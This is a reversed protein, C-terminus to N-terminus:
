IIRQFLFHSHFIKKFFCFNHFLHCSPAWLYHAIVSSGLSIPIKWERKGWEEMRQNNRKISRYRSPFSEFICEFWCLKPVEPSITQTSILIRDFMISRQHHHHRHHYCLLSLLWEMKRMGESARISDKWSKIIIIMIIIITIITIIFWWQHHDYHNKNCFGFALFFCVPIM